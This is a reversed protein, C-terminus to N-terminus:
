KLFYQNPIKSINEANLTALSHTCLIGAAEFKKYSCKVSPGQTDLQITSTKSGWKTSVNVHFQYTLQGCSEKEHSTTLIGMFEKEFQM